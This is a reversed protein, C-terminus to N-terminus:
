FGAGLRADVSWNQSKGGIGGLEGSVSLQAGGGWVTNVGASARATLGGAVSGTVSPDIAPDSLGAADGASTVEASLGAHPTVLAGEVAIPYSVEAGAAVRANAMQRTGQATGDSDTYADQNEVMGFANVAPKLRFGGGLEVDGTAGATAMFRNANFSGTADGASVDYGLRSYGLAGSLRLGELDVGAYGGLTWGDGTIDGDLLVSSYGFAEYGALVGVAIDPTIRHTIGAYGNFQIGDLDSTGDLNGTGTIRLNLWADTGDTLRYSLRLGDGGFGSDDDAAGFGDTMAAAAAGSFADGSVLAATRTGIIQMGRLLASDSTDAVVQTLVSSTSGGFSADGFYFATIAHSGAALANTTFSAVGGSLTFTGIVTAGDRFEVDGSATGTAPAVVSVTATFTVNDGANSPNLSSAIATTTGGQGVVQSVTGVSGSFGSSGNYTATVTGTGVPLSSTTATAVGAGDLAVILSTGGPGTFTLTGTPTGIGPSVVAVTATFTISQGWDSPNPSATITTTTSAPGSTVAVTGSSGAFNAVEGNYTATITGVPVNTGVYSAIGGSLAATQTFGGPGTFTVTGTPTGSAPAAASVTASLAVTDGIVHPNPSATVVTTSSAEGISVDSTDSSGNYSSTGGYTAIYTGAALASTTYTASGGSLTLTQSFGGPGTLSVTGGPVGGGPAVPAVTVTITVSQGFVSPEPSVGVNTTTDAPNVSTSTTGASGNYSASGGYTATITGAPITTGTYTAVGSGNLTGTQSFGGPGTFTVTGTPTGSGPATASVTATLTVAQVTVSPEPSATVATTTNAANVVQPLSDSSGGLGVDGNYTATATGGTIFSATTSASGSGNLPVTAAFGGPGTFTVTGTPTGTAPLDITVTATLTVSEGAVTANPSASLVTTTGADNVTVAVSDNSSNYAVAGNYTASFTGSTLTSSTLTAIGSGDLPVTASVGGPGTFTVTGTPTGSGPAVATVTATLTVSENGASPDPSAIVNTTTDAPNRTFADTDSSGNYNTDGNYTATVTGTTGGATTLAAVGSGDLPVTANIGGPGTFTVTGTPVVSAPAVPAVTASFTTSQGTVSPNPSTSLTTTSDGIANAFTATGSGNNFNTDGSTFAATIIGPQLTTSTFSATGGSLAVTTNLGGPGTFTVSGGAPTGSGPAAAAIAATVTVSQGLVSPNPSVSVAVNSNAPNVTLLVTGSGYLFRPDQGNYTATVIGSSATVTASAQGAVLAVIVNLGYSDTFTITGTPTGSSPPNATVTATVTVPQGWVSPNPVGVVTTTTPAENVVQNLQTSTSPDLPGGGGYNAVVSHTAVTLTSTTLTAVGSGDLAVNQPAGGDIVFSVSGAPTGGLSDDLVTATFTVSQGYVSPSVDSTLNTTTSQAFVSGVTAALVVLTAALRKAGAALPGRALALRVYKM